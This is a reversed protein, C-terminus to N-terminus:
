RRYKNHAALWETQTAAYSISSFIFLITIMSIITTISKKRM